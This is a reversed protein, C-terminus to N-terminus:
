RTHVSSTNVLKRVPRKFLSQRLAIDAVEVSDVYPRKDPRHAASEFGVVHATGADHLLKYPPGGASPVPASM